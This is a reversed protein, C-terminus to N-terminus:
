TSFVITYASRHDDVGLTHVFVVPGGADSSTVVVENAEAGVVTGPECGTPMDLPKDDVDVSSGRTTVEVERLEPDGAADRGPVAIGVLPNGVVTDGDVVGGVDVGDGVVATDEVPKGGKGGATESSGAITVVDSRPSPTM